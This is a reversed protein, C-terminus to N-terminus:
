PNAQVTVDENQRPFGSKLFRLADDDGWFVGALFARVAVDILDVQRLTSMGHELLDPDSCPEECHDVVPDDGGLGTIWATYEPSAEQPIEGTVADCGVQDAHPIQDLIDAMAHIFGTHTGDALTVLWCPPAAAAFIPPASGEYPILADRDGYVLLLPVETTEFTRRPLRCASGAFVIVAGVAPHRELPHLGALFVTFAGLSHGLLAVRTPDAAGHLPDGATDSKELLRDIVFRVDGPQSRVDDFLIEGGLHTLPFDLAAVVHGHSALLGALRYFNSRDGMFGHAFVVLPYPAGSLDAPADVEGALAPYHVSTVLTRDPLASADPTEPTQRSTDVLDLTFRGVARPGDAQFDDNTYTVGGDDGCSGLAPIVCLLCCGLRHSM